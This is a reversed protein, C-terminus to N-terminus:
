LPRNSETHKQTTRPNLILSLINVNTSHSKRKGIQMMTVSVRRICCAGRTGGRQGLHGSRKYINAKLSGIDVLVGDGQRIESAVRPSVDDIKETDQYAGTLSPPECAIRGKCVGKHVRLHV